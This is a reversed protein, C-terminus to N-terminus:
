FIRDLYAAAAKLAVKGIANPFVIIQPVALSVRSTLKFSRRTFM